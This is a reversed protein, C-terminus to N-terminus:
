DSQDGPEREKLWQHMEALGKSHSYFGDAFVAYDGGGAMASTFRISNAYFLWIDAWRREIAEDFPSGGAAPGTAYGNEWIEALIRTAELTAANTADHTQDYRAFHGDVWSSGHCSRCITKMEARRRAQEEPGILFESAPTGDLATPLPLGDKNRIVTTDPIKPHAHSYVLGFIRTAIRNNMSHTREAIVEGEPDVLLSVHCAACTPATFDEGVTWPVANFDWDKEQSHFINGHKSASYVKYVPVDPGVHCEKCTYPKRATAISFDHRTHCASCSGLSGDLNVRGVGQNPWGAIVPFQMEGFDTERTQTGTVELKTGHCYLCGQAEIEPDPDKFSLKGNEYEPMGLLNRELDQYLANGKLNAYAHAMINGAYQETEVSHCVACDDPSVVIHIRYDNHEFSDAHEDPRLMHCEACGVVVGAQEAPVTSSSVKRALGTVATASAPTIRSHRSERWSGVIGPHLTEHCMLCAETAESVAPPDAAMLTLASFMTVLFFLISTRNM